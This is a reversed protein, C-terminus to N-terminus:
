QTTPSYSAVGLTICYATACLGADRLTRSRSRSSFAGFRNIRVRFDRRPLAFVGTCLLVCKYKRSPCLVDGDGYLLTGDNRTIEFDEEVSGCLLAFM